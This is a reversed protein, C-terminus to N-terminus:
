LVRELFTEADQVRLEGSVLKPLLTDRIAALTAKERENLAIRAYIPECARIFARLVLESPVVVRIPRFNAKSIEQFTSGNANQVISPMHAHLWLWAFLNPLRGDCLMAIFGQNVAVPQEAIAVYGIPARSSLLVTGRPLLGSSITALGADTIKRSTELLM